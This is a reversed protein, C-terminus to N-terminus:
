QLGDALLYYDIMKGKTTYGLIKMQLVIADKQAATKLPTVVINEHAMVWYKTGEEEVEIENVYYYRADPKGAYDKLWKTVIEKRQKSLKRVKGTFNVRVSNPLNIASLVTSETKDSVPMMGGLLDAFIGNAKRSDAIMRSIKRYQVKDATQGYSFGAPVFLLLSFFILNRIM